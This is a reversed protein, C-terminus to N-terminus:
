HPLTDNFRAGFAALVDAIKQFQPVKSIDLYKPREPATRLQPFLGPPYSMNQGPFFSVFGGNEGNLFQFIYFINPTADAFVGCYIRKYPIYLIYPNQGGM